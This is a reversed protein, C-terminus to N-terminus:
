LKPKTWRAPRKMTSIRDAIRKRVIVGARKIEAPSPRAGLAAAAPAEPFSVNFGRAKMEKVIITYRDYLMGRYQACWLVHGTGLKFQAPPKSKSCFNWLRPLERYEARLHQDCLETPPVGVNIRTM